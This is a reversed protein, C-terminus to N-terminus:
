LTKLYEIVAKRESATLKDGFYHGYNGYGPIDTNYTEKGAPKRLTKYKWGVNEYDYEQKDFNRKWYKPRLKSDLVAELTPVSGNHFYPATIWIGDLPQAVYGYEPRVFSAQYSSAFWSNNYWDRYGNNTSYYKLFISDTGIIQEPILKNPYYGDQGYTGHCDSCNNNFILKGEEALNKNIPYPYEPPELTKLYAWVDKMRSYITAAEATDKLTLLTALMFQKVPDPQALGDYNWANKKKALWWAPIDTPVPADPLTFYSTDSRFLLTVPDRHSAMVDVIRHGPNPGQMELMIRPAVVTAANYINELNKWQTSNKGYWMKMLLRGPKLYKSYDVQFKSYSNGLGIVLKGNFTQSHCQLCGPAAIVQGKSFVTFDNLEYKNYGALTIAKRMKTKFLFQYLSNPFGSSILDGHLLYQYGAEANGDEQKQYDSFTLISNTKRSDDPQQQLHYLAQRSNKQLLCSYFFCSSSLSLIILLKKM